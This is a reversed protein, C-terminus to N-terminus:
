RLCGKGCRDAFLRTILVIVVSAQVTMRLVNAFLPLADPPSSFNM